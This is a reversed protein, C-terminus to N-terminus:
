PIFQYGARRITLIHHPPDSEGLKQRLWAVHVDVTRSSVENNYGWVDDLLEDRSMVRQPHLAFHALLKFEMTNLLIQSGDARTLARAQLDLTFEGFRLPEPNVNKQAELHEHTTAHWRRLLAEIRALLEAMSFPKCLYDDAGTKLGRVRDEVATRATLMLIPVNAKSSRLRKCVEFGDMDPLMVDLLILAIATNSVDMRSYIELATKGDTATEVTYSSAVLRDQITM